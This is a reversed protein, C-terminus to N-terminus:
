DLSPSLSSDERPVVAALWQSNRRREDFLRVQDIRPTHIQYLLSTALQQSTTEKHGRSFSSHIVFVFIAQTDELNENHIHNYVKLCTSTIIQTPTHKFQCWLEAM